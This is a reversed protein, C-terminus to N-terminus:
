TGTCYVCVLNCMIYISYVIVICCIIKISIGIIILMIFSYLSYLRHGTTSYSTKMLQQNATIITYQTLIFLLSTNKHPM